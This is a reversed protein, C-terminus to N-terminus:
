LDGDPRADDAERRMDNTTYDNYGAPPNAKQVARGVNYFHGPSSIVKPSQGPVIRHCAGPFNSAMVRVAFTSARM